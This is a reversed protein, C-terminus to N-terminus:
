IMFPRMMSKIFSGNTIIKVNDLNFKEITEIWNDKLAPPVIILTRSRHEPFGNTYFYKKCNPQFLPKGLGVVDALFGNHKMM